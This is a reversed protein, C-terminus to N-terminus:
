RREAIACKRSNCKFWNAYPANEFTETLRPDGKAFLGVITFAEDQLIEIHDAVRRRM